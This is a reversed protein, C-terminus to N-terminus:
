APAGTLPNYTGRKPANDRHVLYRTGLAEIQKFRQFEYIADRREVDSLGTDFNKIDTNKAIM